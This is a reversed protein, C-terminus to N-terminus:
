TKSALTEARQLGLVMLAVALPGILLAGGSMSVSRALTTVLLFGGGSILLTQALAILLSLHSRHTM